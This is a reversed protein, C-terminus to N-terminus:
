KNHARLYVLFFATPVCKWFHHSCACFTHAHVHEWPVLDQGFPDSCCLAAWIGSPVQTQLLPQCMIHSLVSMVAATVPMCSFHGTKMLGWLGADWVEPHILSFCQCTVGKTVETLSWRQRMLQSDLGPLSSPNLPPYSSFPFHNSLPLPSSYYCKSKLPWTLAPPSNGTTSKEM